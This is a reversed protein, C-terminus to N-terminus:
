KYLWDKGYVENAELLNFGGNILFDTGYVDRFVKALEPELPASRLLKSAEEERGEERLMNAEYITLTKEKFTMHRHEIKTETTEMTKRRRNISGTKAM